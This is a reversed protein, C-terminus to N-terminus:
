VIPIASRYALRFRTRSVYNEPFAGILTEAIDAMNADIAAVTDADIGTVRDPIVVHGVDLVHVANRSFTDITAQNRQTRSRNIQVRCNRFNAYRILRIRTTCASRAGRNHACSGNQVLASIVPDRILIVDIDTGCRNHNMTSSTKTPLLRPLVELDVLIRKFTPSTNDAGRQIGRLHQIHRGSGQVGAHCHLEIGAVVRVSLRELKFLRAISVIGDAIHLGSQVQREICRPGLQPVPCGNGLLRPIASQRLFPANLGNSVTLVNNRRSHIAGHDKVHAAAHRAVSRRNLRIGVVAGGGLPPRERRGLGQALAEVLQGGGVGPRHRRAGVRNGRRQAGRM